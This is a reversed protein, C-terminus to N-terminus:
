ASAAARDMYGRDYALRLGSMVLKDKVIDDESQTKVIEFISMIKEERKKEMNEM